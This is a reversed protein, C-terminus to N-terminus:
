ESCPAGCPLCVGHEAYCLSGVVIRSTFGPGHPKGDVRFKLTHADTDIETTVIQRDSVWGAADSSDKGNGFLSGDEICMWMWFGIEEDNPGFPHHVDWGTGDPAVDICM